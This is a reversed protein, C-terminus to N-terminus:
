LQACVLFELSSHLSSYRYGSYMENAFLVAINFVWTLVPGYRAGRSLKSICYNVSVLALVKFASTGHLGLLMLISFVVVFPILHLRDAPNKHASRNFTYKVIFYAASLFALAPINNRFSRYQMDSNDQQENLLRRIQPTLTCERDGARIVLRTVSTPSLLSLKFTYSYSRWIFVSQLLSIM